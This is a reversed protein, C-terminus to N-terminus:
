PGQVWPVSGAQSGQLVCVCACCSLCLQQQQEQQCSMMVRVGCHLVLPVLRLEAVVQLVLLQLLLSPLLLLWAHM